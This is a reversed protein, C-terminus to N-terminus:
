RFLAAVPLHFGPLIEEGDLSDGEGLVHEPQGSRHITVGRQAPEVIWVLTVGSELYNPLADAIRWSRDPPFALGVALDPALRLFGPREALSPLREARVFAVDPVLM